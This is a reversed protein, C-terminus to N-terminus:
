DPTASNCFFHGHCIAIVTIVMDVGPAWVILVVARDSCNLDVFHLMYRETYHATRMFFTVM